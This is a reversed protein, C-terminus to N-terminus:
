PNHSRVHKKKLRQNILEQQIEEIKSLRENLNSIRGGCGRYLEELVPMVEHRIRNRAFLPSANTPDSWQPLKLERCISDTQKREFILMPRSLQIGGPAHKRIPRQERLSCLGRLDTGRALQLLLTEKRDTATHATAVVAQLRTGTTELCHYTWARAKAECEVTTPDATEGFFELSQEQCCLELADCCRQAENHWGHNGHWVHLKWQHQKYLDKALGLLAM